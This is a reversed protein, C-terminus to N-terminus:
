STVATVNVKENVQQGVRAVRRKEEKGKTERWVCVCVGEGHKLGLEFLRRHELLEEIGDLVEHRVGVPVAGRLGKEGANIGGSREEEQGGM